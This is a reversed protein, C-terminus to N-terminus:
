NINSAQHNLLYPKLSKYIQHSNQVIQLISPTELIVLMNSFNGKVSCISSEENFARNSMEVNLIHFDEEAPIHEEASQYERILNHKYVLENNLHMVQIDDLSFKLENQSKSEQDSQFKIGLIKLTSVEKKVRMRVVLGELDANM